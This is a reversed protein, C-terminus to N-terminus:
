SFLISSLHQRYKVTFPDTMGAAEFLKLLLQRAAGDEFDRDMRISELLAEAAGDMNGRAILGKALAIRAAHDDGHAALKAGLAEIDASADGLAVVDMAASLRDFRAKLDKNDKVADADFATLIEKADDARGSKMSADALGLVAAPTDPAVELIRAYLAAAPGVQGEGLLADAEELAGALPDGAEGAPAGTRQLLQDIFGKIQSGPLAGQFGDVPQGQWFAVVTPLSQVQLQAALQQNQDVNVKVLAVAGGAETVAQELAPTLQRCPGCWDAWFDVLVPRQTSAEMVDAMFSQTTADKILDGAPQASPAPGQGQGSFIDTM